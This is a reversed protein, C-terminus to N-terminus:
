IPERRLGQQRGAHICRWRPRQRRLDDGACRQDGHRHGIRYQKLEYCLGQQLSALLAAHPIWWAILNSSTSALWDRSAQVTTM